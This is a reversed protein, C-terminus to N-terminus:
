FDLDAKFGDKLMEYTPFLVLAAMAYHPITGTVGKMFGGLGENVYIRKVMGPFSCAGQWTTHMTQMRAVVVDLPNTIVATLSAASASSVISLPLNLETTSPFLPEFARSFMEYFGFTLSTELASQTFFAPGGLYLKKFGENKLVKMLGDFFHSYDYHISNLQMRTRIMIFPLYISNSFLGGMFAAVFPGTTNSLTGSREFTKKLKEYMYFYSGNAFFSGALTCTYGRVYSFAGENRYMRRIQTILAVSERVNTKIRTRVTDMPHLLSDMLLGAMGGLYGYLLHSSSSREQEHSFAFSTNSFSM